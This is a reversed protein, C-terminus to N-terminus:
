KLKKLLIELEKETFVLASMFKQNCEAIAEEIVYDIYEKETEFEDGVNEEIEDESISFKEIHPKKAYGGKAILIFNRESTKAKVKTKTKTAM